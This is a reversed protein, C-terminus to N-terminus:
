FVRTEKNLSYDKWFKNLVASGDISFYAATGGSGDDSQFIIDKDDTSQRIYLDGSNEQIYSDTGNNIIIRCINLMSVLNCM